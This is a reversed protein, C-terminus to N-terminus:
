SDHKSIMDLFIKDLGYEEIHTLRKRPERKQEM